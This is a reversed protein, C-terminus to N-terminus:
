RLRRALLESLREVGQLVVRISGVLQELQRLGDSLRHTDKVLDLPATTLRQVTAILDERGHLGRQVAQLCHVDRVGGQVRHHLVDSTTQGAHM